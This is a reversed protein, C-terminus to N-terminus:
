QNQTKRKRSQYNETTERPDPIKERSKTAFSKKKQHKMSYYSNNSYYCTWNM